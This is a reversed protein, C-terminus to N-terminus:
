KLQFLRANLYVKRYYEELLDDMTDMDQMTRSIVIDNVLQFRSDSGDGRIDNKQLSGSETLIPEEGAKEEMIYYQLSEGFFLIFEKFCVGGYVERMYESIYEEPGGDEHIIVYHIRARCGPSTRYEILTKDALEQQVWDFQKLEKFVSLHIGETMFERLFTEVLLETDNTLYAQNESYYKIFALKGIRQVPEGRQYMNQIEKFVDKETVREMVFYDFACQALFAEEVEAKAGQSVYYRFIEMKEGVFAGSYLMQVLITESLKYCDVGFSRAAKWVDRMEKAMGRYYKVLYALVTGDYKERSFAYVAAATLVPDEIMNNREMLPSILRVLVKPDVFYPGYLNLWQRATEYQGRLVMFRIVEGREGTSLEQAPIQGLYEDLSRMDDADYYYRMVKLYLERKLFPQALGSELVRLARDIRERLSEKEERDDECLYLDFETSRCLYPILLRLYKGPIMLKELTYEATRIFRNGFADEFVITYNSGYLAVWAQGDSLVYESPKLNGPQYVYAKKLREDEVRVLHAFLLRSLPGCTDQSIMGPHLMRNYLNALHRDIHERRIQDLVFYEMRPRYADVIEGLKDANQMIYDYLFATHEYDLNNQYSFYLLVTRPLEQATNLNLSMMYYEFLNTIRLRANVGAKYWKFYRQEARAGKILLTCIEQLFRVDNKREYLVVLARFLVPTFERVKGTLYLLQEAVEQKILDKKAAYWIVQLEFAGLKRLLAPNNTLMTVAEIYLIPSTCGIHFQKELFAWKETASRHYEESLYLLLWAIRWNTDDRRYMQEVQAAVRDVYDVERHILTTLYLYYATLSDDKTKGQELLEAVHDLIWGAENCREETILIQAQLLRANVDNENRAVLYEMLAESERRWVSASIKRTRFALYLEMLQSLTQKQKLEAGKYLGGSNCQVTVPITLSVYCNYLYIEGFSRGKRCQGGDVFVPLRCRNGLFDDDTLVEKETFLFEGSCEVFLQTFGWGNRIINLEREAVDGPGFELGFELELRTEEVLYEVKQKKNVQILFEEMGQESGPNVALARYDEAYQIDRQAFIRTFDPSYFLKLAELWNTKALNAFHFLNKIVGVSSNLVRHEVVAVFPLYYEGQNSIVSFNGKVVDGEELHEGHFCFFIEEEAGVFERTLCEMRLDSSVVTGSVYVGQPAYIHFSGEYQEGQSLSIDIKECSFDLSGNEYYFNGELIQNIIKEM